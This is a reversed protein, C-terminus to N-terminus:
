NRFRSYEDYQLLAEKLRNRGRHYRSKAATETINEAKSFEKISVGYMGVHTVIRYTDEPLKNLERHLIQARINEPADPDDEEPYTCVKSTTEIHDDYSIFGDVNYGRLQRLRDIARCYAIRKIWSLPNGKSSDCVYYKASVERIVKDFVHEAEGQDYEKLVLCIIRFIETFHECIFLEMERQSNFKPFVIAKSSGDPNFEQNQM